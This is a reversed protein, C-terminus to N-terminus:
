FARVPRVVVTAIEKHSLVESGGGAFDITRAGIADEESSSAYSMTQLGHRMHFNTGVALKDHVVKLEDRSPLFWDDFGNIVADAAIKAAECGASVLMQTNAAGTGIATDTAGVLKNMCGWKTWPDPRGDNWAKPAVELYRWGDTRSGKDYVIIGGAPGTEGLRYIREPKRVLRIFLGGTPLVRVAQGDGFMVAWVATPQGASPTSTWLVPQSISSPFVETNQAPKDRCFEVLTALEARNPLRWDGHGAFMSSEAEQLAQEWSFVTPTGTCSSSTYMQGVLCRTWMLGTRRDTVTGDVHVEFDATSTTAPAHPNTCVSQATATLPSLLLLMCLRRIM